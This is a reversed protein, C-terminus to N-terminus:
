YGLQWGFDPKKFRGLGSIRSVCRWANINTGFQSLNHCFWLYVGSFVANSLAVSPLTNKSTLISKTGIMNQTVRQRRREDRDSERERGGGGGKGKIETHAHRGKLM